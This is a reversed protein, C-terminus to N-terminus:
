ARDSALRYVHAANATTISYLGNPALGRLAELMTALVRSYPAELTCVPYDTGLMLRNPGFTEFAIAIAHRAVNRALGSIKATVNEHGALRELTQAWERLTEGTPSGLHDLVFQLRPHAAVVSPAHCFQKPQLILDFSLGLEGLAELGAGVKPRLLWRENAETHVLHRVGKFRRHRSLHELATRVDDAKLDVWGIVGLLWEFRDALEFAWANERLNHSAQVFM